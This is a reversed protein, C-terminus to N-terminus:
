ERIKNLNKVHLKIVTMDKDNLEAYEMYDHNLQSMQLM